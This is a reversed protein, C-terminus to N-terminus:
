MRDVYSVIRRGGASSCTNGSCTNGSCTNGSCTDGSCTDGSCATGPVGQIQSMDPVAQQVLGKSLVM